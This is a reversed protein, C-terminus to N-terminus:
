LPLRFSKGKFIAYSCHHIFYIFNGKKSSHFLEQWPQDETSYKDVRRQISQM